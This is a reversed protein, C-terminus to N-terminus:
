GARADERDRPRRGIQADLERIRTILAEIEAAFAGHLPDGPEPGPADEPM